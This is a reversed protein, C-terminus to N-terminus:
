HVWDLKKIDKNTINDLDFILDTIDDKEIKDSIESVEINNDIILNAIDYVCKPRMYYGNNTSGNLIRICETLDKKKKKKYEYVENYFKEIFTNERKTLNCNDLAWKLLIFVTDIYESNLIWTYGWFPEIDEKDKGKFSYNNLNIKSKSNIKLKEIIFNNIKKM